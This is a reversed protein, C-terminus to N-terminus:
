NPQRTSCAEEIVYNEMM